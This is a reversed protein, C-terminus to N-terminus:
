VGPILYKGSGDVLTSETPFEVEGINGVEQILQGSVVVTQHPVLERSVSDFLTVDQIVLSSPRDPEVTVTACGSLGLCTLIVLFQRLGPSAIM